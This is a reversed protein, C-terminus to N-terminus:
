KTFIQLVATLTSEQNTQASSNIKFSVIKVFFPMNELDEVFQIINPIQGKVDLTHEVAGGAAAASFNVAIQVEDKKAMEELASQYDLLDTSSPLARNIQGVFPLIEQFNKEAAPEIAQKKQGLQIAEEKSVLNNEEKKIAGITWFLLAASMVLVIIVIYITKRIQRRIATQPDETYLRLGPFNNLNFEKENM